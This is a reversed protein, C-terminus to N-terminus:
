YVEVRNRGSDKARYLAIDAKRLLDDITEEKVIDTGSVGFSATMSFLNEGYPVKMESLKIRLQNVIEVAVAPWTDPFIAVFEEGGYRGLIDTIRLSERCTKATSILVEDGAQHGYNDNFRKFHDIDMIMLSLPRGHRRATLLERQALELMQRRNYVKTLDDVTALERLKQLLENLRTVDHLAVIRGLPRSKRDFFDTIKSRFYRISDGVTIRFEANEDGGAAIQQELEPLHRIYERVETGIGRPSLSPFLSRAAENADVSRNARDLVLLPDYM